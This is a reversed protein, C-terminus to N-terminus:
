VQLLLDDMLLLSALSQPEESLCLSNENPPIAGQFDIILPSASTAPHAAPGGMLLELEEEAEESLCNNIFALLASFESPEHEDFKKMRRLENKKNRRVQASKPKAPYSSAAGNAAALESSKSQTAHVFSRLAHGVKDRALDDGIEVWQNEPQGQLTSNKICRVFGGANMSKRRIEDVVGIVILGKDLKSRARAYRHANQAICHRFQRNGEHSFISKGRGCIVDFPGPEFDDCLPTNKPYHIRPVISPTQYHRATTSKTKSAMTTAKNSRSQNQM